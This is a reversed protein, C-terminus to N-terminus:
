LADKNKLQEELDALRQQEIMLPQLQQWGRHCEQLCYTCTPNHDDGPAVYGCWIEYLLKMHPDGVVPLAKYILNQQLMEKRLDAPIAQVIQAYTM